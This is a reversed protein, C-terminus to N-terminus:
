KAVRVAFDALKKKGGKLAAVLWRPKNGRGAWTESSNAPNRYKPAFARRKSHGNTKIRRPSRASGLELAELRQLSETLRKREQVVRSSIAAEVKGKLALLEDFDMSSLQKMVEGINKVVRSESRRELGIGRSLCTRQAHERRAIRQGHTTESGVKVGVIAGQSVLWTVQPSSLVALVQFQM